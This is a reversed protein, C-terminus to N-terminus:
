PTGGETALADIAIQAMVDVGDAGHNGATRYERVIAELAARLADPKPASLLPLVFADLALRSQIAAVNTEVSLQRRYAMVAQEHETRLREYEAVREGDPAPQNPALGMVVYGDALWPRGALIYTVTRRMERGTYSAPRRPCVNEGMCGNLACHASQCEREPRYERLWLTDGVRFGRDDKRVEFTKEGSLLSCFFEPWCRLEHESV